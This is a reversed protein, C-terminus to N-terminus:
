FSSKANTKQLLLMRSRLLTSSESRNWGSCKAEDQEVAQALLQEQRQDEAAAADQEAALNIIREQEMQLMQREDQEGRTFSSKANTKQLLLM